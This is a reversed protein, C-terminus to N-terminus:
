IHTWTKRHAINSVTSADVGFLRGTEINSRGAAVRSRIERVMEDTLKAGRVNEGRAHLATPCTGNRGKKVMDAINDAPTGLFLHDPRVCKRNDCHHCVWLGTAIPGVHFQYSARHAPGSSTVGYGGTNLSRQWEWCGDEGDLRKVNAMFSDYRCKYSCFM